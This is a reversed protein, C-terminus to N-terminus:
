QTCADNPFSGSWLQSGYGRPKGLIVVEDNSDAMTLIASIEPRFNDVDSAAVDGEFRVVFVRGPADSEVGEQPASKAAKKAKAANEKDTM